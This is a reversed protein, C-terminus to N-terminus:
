GLAKDHFVGVNGILCMKLYSEPFSKAMDSEAMNEM